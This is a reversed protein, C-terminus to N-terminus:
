PAGMSRTVLESFYNDPSTGYEVQFAEGMEEGRLLRDLLSQFRPRGHVAIVDDVLLAYQAFLFLFREKSPLSMTADSDEWRSRYQSPTVARGLRWWAIVREREFYSDVGMQNASLTALGEEFWPPLGLMGSWGLRQFLLAHSLEHMLYTDLHIEGRESELMARPSVFVRGRVPMARFRASGGSLRQYEAESSTCFVEPRMRFTLGHFTEVQVVLDDIVSAIRLATSRTDPHHLVVARSREVRDFGPAWPLFPMLRGWGAHHVLVALLVCVCAALVRKIMRSTRSPGPQRADKSM